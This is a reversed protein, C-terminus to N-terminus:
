CNSFCTWIYTAHLTRSSIQQSIKDLYQLDLDYYTTMSTVLDVLDNPRRAAVSIARLHRRMDHRRYQASVIHLTNDLSRLMDDLYELTVVIGNHHSRLVHAAYFNSNGRIFPTLYTLYRDSIYTCRQIRM